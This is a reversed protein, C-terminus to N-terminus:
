FEHQFKIRKQMICGEGRGGGLPNKPCGLSNMCRAMVAAGRALGDEAFIIKTEPDALVNRSKLKQIILDPKNGTIGARGTIGIVVEETLLKEKQFCEILLVAIESMVDDILIEIGEEGFLDFISKGIRSLKEFDSGNEGVDCGFLIIGINQAAAANVFFPGFCKRNQPIKTVTISKMIEAKSKEIEEARNKLFEIPKAFQIFEFASKKKEDIGSILADAVAGAYGCFNAITKAYPQNENAIRGSLTTGMDIAICPNRFDINKHKGAEKLGALALEGEMENSIISEGLGAPPRVGAVTGDFYVKELHSYPRLKEPMKDINSYGTMKRPPFGATLCGDALALIIMELQKGTEATVGTSRVVFHVDEPTLRNEFLAAQITERVLSSLTKKTLETGGVTKGFIEAEEAPRPIERTLRIHKGIIKTKGSNLDTETLICKTTTNGVEVSAVIFSFDSNESNPKSIKKGLFRSGAFEHELFLAERRESINGLKV